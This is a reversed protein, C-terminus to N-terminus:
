RRGGALVLTMVRSSMGIFRVTVGALITRHSDPDDRREGEYDPAHWDLEGASFSM